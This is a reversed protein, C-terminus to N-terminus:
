QYEYGNTKFQQKINKYVRLHAKKLITLFVSIIFNNGSVEIHEVLKTKNNNQTFHMDVILYVHRKVQSTYRLFKHKEIEIVRAKYNPRITFCKFLLIEENVEYEVYEPSKDETITVNKMVPHVHGYKRFDCFIGYVTEIDIDFEDELQLTQKSM